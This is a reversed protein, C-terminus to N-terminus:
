YVRQVRALRRQRDVWVGRMESLDVTLADDAVALGAIHHGGGRLTFPLDHQRAFRICTQVDATGRCRAIAAPRRDIMANWVRRGADYGADAPAVVTGRIAQRLKDLTDPDLEPM